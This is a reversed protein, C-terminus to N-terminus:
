KETIQEQLEMVSLQLKAKERIYRQELEITAAIKTKYEQIEIGREKLLKDYETTKESM